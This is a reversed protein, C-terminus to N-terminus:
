NVAAGDAAGNQPQDVVPITQRAGYYSAAAQIIGVAIVIVTVAIMRRQQTINDRHRREESEYTALTSLGKPKLKYQNHQQGQLDSSDALSELILRYYSRTSEQDPHKFSRRSYLMELLGFESIQFNHDKVTESRFLDLVEMREMRALTLKNFRKQARRDRWAFLAAYNFLWNFVFRSPWISELRYGCYYHTGEFDFHKLQDKLIICDFGEANNGNFWIGAAGQPVVGKLIFRKGTARETLRILYCNNLLANPGSTPIPNPSPRRMGVKLATM